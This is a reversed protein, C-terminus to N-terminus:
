QLQNFVNQGGHSVQKLSDIIGKASLYVPTDLGETFRVYIPELQELAAGKDGKELLARALSLAAKLELVQGGQRRAIEIALRLSADAPVTDGIASLLEGRVRYVASAAYHEDAKAIHISAEDLRRLGQRPQGIEGHADAIMALQSPLWLTGHTRRYAELGQEIQTFGADVDGRAVLCRGRFIMGIGWFFSVDHRECHAVLEESNTLANEFDDVGIQSVAYLTLANPLTFPHKSQRAEFLVAHWRERAQDVYGLDFLAGALFTRMMIQPDYLVFAAERDGSDYLQLGRELFRRGAGFEGRGICTLGKLRCGRATWVADQRTEGLLLLEEAIHQAGQLDTRMLAHAWQGYLVSVLEPPQNLRKCLERAREFIKGASPAAYGEAAITARSLCLQVELEAEDRKYGEPLGNLLGLGERFAATAEVTAARTLARQGAKLWYKIAKEPLGANAAHQAVLEPQARVTEPFHHEMAAVIRRHLRERRGRLLSAYAADRILAHKFRFMANPPVGRCSVLQARVLEGLVSNLLQSPMGALEALLECSFDRGIAAATQAIDRVGALGDIRALLLAHM